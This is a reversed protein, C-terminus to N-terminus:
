VTGQQKALQAAAQDKQMGKNILQQLQQGLQPDKILNAVPDALAAAATADQTSLPANADAKSLAATAKDINLGPVKSKLSQLNKQINTTAQAANKDTQAAVAPNATGTTGITGYEQLGKEQKTQEWRARLKDALSMTTACEQEVSESAGVLRGKFPHEGSKKATAKETGRVQDGPKQAPNAFAFKTGEEVQRLTEIIKYIDM